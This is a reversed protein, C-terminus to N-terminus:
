VHARGIETLERVILVDVGTLREPRLPSADALAAHVAVPRLNAYASLLRRLALLGAEPRRSGTQDPLSPDGVAGLLVAQADVVADRTRATLAEGFERVGVAGIPYEDVDIQYGMLDAVTRLVRVAEATVEPGIGDGPLVAITYRTM